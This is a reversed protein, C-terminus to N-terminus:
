GHPGVVHEMVALQVEDDGRSIQLLVLVDM